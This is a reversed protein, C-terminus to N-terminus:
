VQKEINTPPCYLEEKCKVKYGNNDMEADYEQLSCIRSRLTKVIEICKRALLLIICDNQGKHHVGATGM